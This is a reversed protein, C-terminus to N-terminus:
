EGKLRNWLGNMAEKAKGMQNPKRHVVLQGENDRTLYYTFVFDNGESVSNTTEAISNWGSFEGFRLDNMVLTDSFQELTYYGKTLFQLRQFDNEKEVERQLLHQKAIRKFVVKPQKDFLSYYGMLFDDELEM